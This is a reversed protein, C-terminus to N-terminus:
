YYHRKIEKLREEGIGKVRILDDIECDKNTKLYALIRISLVEGIDDMEMLEEHATLRIDNKYNHNFCLM